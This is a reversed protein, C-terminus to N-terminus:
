PQMALEKVYAIAKIKSSEPLKYFDQMFAHNRETEDDPVEVYISRAKTKDGKVYELAEQLSKLTNEHVTM